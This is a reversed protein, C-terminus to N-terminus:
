APEIRPVLRLRRAPQSKEAPKAIHELRRQIMERFMPLSAHIRAVVDSSIKGAGQRSSFFTHTRTADTVYVHVPLVTTVNWRLHDFFERLIPQEETGSFNEATLPALADAITRDVTVRMESESLQM